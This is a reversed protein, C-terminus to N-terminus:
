KKATQQKWLEELIQMAINHPKRKGSEWDAITARRGGFRQSFVAQTEGLRERIQKIKTATM